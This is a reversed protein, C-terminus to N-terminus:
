DKTLQYETRGVVKSTPDRTTFGCDNGESLEIGINILNEDESLKLRDLYWDLWEQDVNSYITTIKLIM